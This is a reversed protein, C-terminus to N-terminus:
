DNILQLFKKTFGEDKIAAAVRDHKGLAHSIEDRTGVVRYPVEYSQCKDTLKKKTNESADSAILVLTAQKSRIDQIINEEGLSVKKARFALGLLNLYKSM